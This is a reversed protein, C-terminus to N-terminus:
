IRSKFFKLNDAAIDRSKGIYGHGMELSLVHDYGIGKIASLIEEWDLVGKGPAAFKFQEGRGMSFADGKEIEAPNEKEVIADKVHCHVIKKSFKKIFPIVDERQYPFHSPDFNVYLDDRDIDYFLKETTEYNSVMYVFVPEIAIKVGKNKAYECIQKYARVINDWEQAMAIEATGKLWQRHVDASPLPGSVTHVVDVGTYQAIDIIKKTHEVNKKWDPLSYGVHCQLATVGLGMKRARDFVEKASEKKYQKANSDIDYAPIEVTDYGIEKALGIADELSMTKMFDGVLIGLKV